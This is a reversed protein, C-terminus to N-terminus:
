YMLTFMTYFLIKLNCYQVTVVIICLVTSLPILFFMLTIATCYLVTCLMGTCELITRKLVTCKHYKIAYYM